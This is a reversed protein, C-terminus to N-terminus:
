MSAHHTNHIRALAPHFAATPSGYFDGVEKKDFFLITPSYFDPMVLQPVCAVSAYAPAVSGAGHALKSQYKSKAAQNTFDLSLQALLVHNVLDARATRSNKYQNLYGFEVRTCSNLNKGIGVFLRNEAFGRMPGNAPSNLNIFPEDSVITYYSSAGIKRTIRLQDAVRVSPGEWTKRWTEELRVRSSFTISELKRSYTCQQWLRKDETHNKDFHPSFFYGAFASWKDNFRYGFGPRVECDELQPHQSRRFKPQVECFFQVHKYVPLKVSVPLWAGYDHVLPVPMIPM